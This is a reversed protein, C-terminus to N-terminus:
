TKKSRGTKVPDIYTEPITMIYKTVKHKNTLKTLESDM